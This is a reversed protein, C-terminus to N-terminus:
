SHKERAPRGGAVASPLAGRHVPWVLGGGVTSAGGGAWGRAEGEVRGDDGRADPHGIGTWGIGADRQPNSGPPQDSGWRSSGSPRHRTHLSSRGGDGAAAATTESSPFYSDESEYTEELRGPMGEAFSLMKQVDEGLPPAQLGSHHRFVEGFFRDFLAEEENSLKSACVAVHGVGLESALAGGERRVGEGTDAKAGVVILPVRGGGVAATGSGGGELDAALGESFFDPPYETSRGSRLSRGSSSATASSRGNNGSKGLISIGASDLEAVWVRLDRLSRPISVDYVLLVGAAECGEFFMGRALAADPSGGVDWFEISRNPHGGALLKVDVSCGVTPLTNGPVGNGGGGHCFSHVLTTKGAAMPGVVLVRAHHPDFNKGASADM